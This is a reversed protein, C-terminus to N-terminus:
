TGRTARNTGGLPDRLIGKALQEGPDTVTGALVEVEAADELAQDTDCVVLVGPHDDLRVNVAPRGDLQMFAGQVHLRRSGHPADLILEGFRAAHADQHAGLAEQASPALRGDLLADLAELCTAWGAADGAPRGPQHVFSHTFTLRTGDPTEALEFRLIDEAWAFAFVRPPDFELVEGPYVDLGQEGGFDFQMPAGIRREYAVAAPFWAALQTPDTVADWVREPGHAITREFRLTDHDGDIELTATM